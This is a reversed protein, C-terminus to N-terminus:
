RCNSWAVWGIIGVSGPPAGCTGKPLSLPTVQSITYTLLYTFLNDTRTDHLAYPGSRSNRSRLIVGNRSKCQPKTVLPEAERHVQHAWPRRTKHEGESHKPRPNLRHTDPGGGTTRPDRPEHAGHPLDVRPARTGGYDVRTGDTRLVRHGTGVYGERKRYSGPLVECRGRPGRNRTRQRPDVVVTGGENGKPSM